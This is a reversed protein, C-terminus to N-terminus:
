PSPSPRSLPPLFLQPQPLLLESLQLQLLLLPPLMSRLLQLLKLLQPLQLSQPLMHTATHTDQMDVLTTIDMHTTPMLLPLMLLLLLMHPMHLMHTPMTDMSDMSLMLMPRLKVSSLPPHSMDSHDLKLELLFLLRSLADM